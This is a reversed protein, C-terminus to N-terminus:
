KKGGIKCGGWFAMDFAIQVLLNCAAATLGMLAWIDNQMVHQLFSLSWHLM